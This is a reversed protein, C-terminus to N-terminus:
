VQLDHGLQINRIMKCYFLFAEGRGAKSIHHVAECESKLLYKPSAVGEFSHFSKGEKEEERVQKGGTERVGRPWVEHGEGRM